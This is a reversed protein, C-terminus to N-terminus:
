NAGIDRRLQTFPDEGRALDELDEAVRRDEEEAHWLRHWIAVETVLDSDFISPLLARRFLPEDCLRDIIEDAEIQLPHDDPLFGEMVENESDSPVYTIQHRTTTTM